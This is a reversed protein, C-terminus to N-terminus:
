EKNVKSEMTCVCHPHFPPLEEYIIVDSQKYFLTQDKCISCDSDKHVVSVINEAGSARLGSAVGYNFAKMLESDDIMNARHKLAKFVLDTINANVKNSNTGKIINRQIGRNLDDKLKIIYKNIHDEIVGDTLPLNVKWVDTRTSQLGVRFAKQSLEVLKNKALSMGTDLIFKIETHSYGKRIIAAKVDQQLNNIAKEVPPALKLISSLEEPGNDLQFSDKNIKASSRTGHQNKPQNKNSIAAGGSAKTRNKEALSKSVEKSEPTGPEDLSQLLIKDREVLGYNTNAWEGEGKGKSVKGNSTTWGTGIFPEHGIEMRMEDHTIANKLFIDVFHNTKAMQSEFDIEKFRLEVMNEDDLITSNPFTSELLLEQIVYSQFMESVEKQDAKTDDILNRSMTQATSRNASGGEGMDVSSVGLGTFIRQKFHEIIREVAIPAPGTLLPKVEHREPTVWCGDSPMQAVKIAVEEVESTGDPNTGAPQKETGVKYHFLPFLHQYVLLEVNEEIRRLARIDDKVSVLDPTGVSYGERKNLSFHIIDEPAFEKPTKGFVEQQYKKIKGYEDRKFRVTEAPMLFYGAIPNLKKNNANVRPRGGSAQENRVKAWFANSTRILSAITQSLLIKFPVGTAEEMQRLRRKIYKVREPKKGIFSYGEKLFLNKKNKFARRAYSEVDIIRGCEALDWESAEWRLSPVRSRGINSTYAKIPSPILKPIITKKTKPFGDTKIKPEKELPTSKVNVNAM